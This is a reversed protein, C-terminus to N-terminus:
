DRGEKIKKEFERMLEKFTQIVKEREDARIDACEQPYEKELADSYLNMREGKRGLLVGNPTHSAM